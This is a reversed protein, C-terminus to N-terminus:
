IIHVKYTTSPFTRSSLPLRLMALPLYITLLFRCEASEGKWEGEFRGSSPTTPGREGWPRARPRSPASDPESLTRLVICRSHSVSFSLFFTIQISHISREAAAPSARTYSDLTVRKTRRECSARLYTDVVTCCLYVATTPTPTTARSYPTSLLLSCCALAPLVM